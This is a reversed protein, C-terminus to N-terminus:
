MLKTAFIRLFSTLHAHTNIEKFKQQYWMNGNNRGGMADVEALKM